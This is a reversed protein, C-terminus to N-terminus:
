VENEEQQVVDLSKWTFDIADDPSSLAGVCIFVGIYIGKAYCPARHNYKFLIDKKNSALLMFPLM